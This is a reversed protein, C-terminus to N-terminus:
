TRSNAPSRTGAGLQRPTHACPICNEADGYRHVLSKVKVIERKQLNDDSVNERQTSPDPSFAVEYGLRPFLVTYPGNIVPSHM